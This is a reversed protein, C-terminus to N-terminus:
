MSIDLIERPSESVIDLGFNIYGGGGGGGWISSEISMPSYTQVKGVNLEWFKTGDISFKTATIVHTGWCVLFKLKVTNRWKSWM